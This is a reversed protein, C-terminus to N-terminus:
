ENNKSILFNETEKIAFNGSRVVDKTKIFKVIFAAFFTDGAGITDKPNLKKSTFKFKKGNFYIVAGKSGNTAILFKKKQNAIIKESIKIIEAINGKICFLNNWFNLNYISKDKQGARAYGQIDLFILTEKPLNSDIIWENDVTSIIVIDNKTINRTRRKRLKNKLAGKETGESVKILIEATGANIKYRLRNKKFIKELFLAPGGEQTKIFKNKADRLIDKTYTSFIKIM